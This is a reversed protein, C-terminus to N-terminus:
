ARLRGPLPQTKVRSRGRKDTGAAAGTYGGKALALTRSHFREIKQFASRIVRSASGHYSPVRAGAARMAHVIPGVRRRASIPTWGDSLCRISIGEFARSTM